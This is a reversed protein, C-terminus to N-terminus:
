SVCDELAIASNATHVTERLLRIAATQDASQPTSQCIELALEKAKGRIRQYRVLQDANPAHYTFLDDLQAILPRPM